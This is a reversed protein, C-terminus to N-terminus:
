FRNARMRALEEAPLTAPLRFFDFLEYLPSVIRGVLEPLAGNIQDAQVTLNTRFVDQQAKRNDMLLRNGELSALSRGRLGTWEAIIVVQASPDGLETAMNSAHLLAEGVRWTPLTVDFLQGPQMGRATEDEQLGRVLFFNGASTVRWFDNHAPGHDEGDRAIWCEVSDNHIYPRLEAKTPVWFEPWGTHRVKGRGLAEVLEANSLRNLNGLLRYGVAFHGKPLRIPSQPDIHATLEGWRALSQDFWRVTATLDDETAELAVGGAIIARM